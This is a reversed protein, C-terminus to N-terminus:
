SFERNIPPIWMSRAHTTAHLMLCACIYRVLLFPTIVRPAGKIRACLSHRLSPQHNSQQMLASGQVFVKSPSLSPNPGVAYAAHMHPSPCELPVYACVDPSHCLNVNPYLVICAKAWVVRTCQILILCVFAGRNFICLVIPPPAVLKRLAPLSPWYM